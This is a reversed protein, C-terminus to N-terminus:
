NKEKIKKRLCLDV